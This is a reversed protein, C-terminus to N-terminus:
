NGQGPLDDLLQRARRATTPDALARRLFITAAACDGEFSLLKGLFLHPLGHNPDLSLARRYCEKAETLRGQEALAEGLYCHPLPLTPSLEIAVRLHREAEGLDNGSSLLMGLYVHAWTESPDLELCRRLAAEAEATRGARWLVHGRERHARALEPDSEIALDYLRLADAESSSVLGLGFLAGASSSNMHLAEEFSARAQELEGLQRFVEGLLTLGQPWPDFAKARVLLDRTEALRGQEFYFFALYYYADPQASDSRIVGLLIDEGRKPDDTRLHARGLRASLDASPRLEVAQSWSAVATAWEGTEEYREAEQILADIDPM